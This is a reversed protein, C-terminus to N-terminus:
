RRTLSTNEEFDKLSPYSASYVVSVDVHNNWGEKPRRDVTYRPPIAMKRMVPAIAPIIRPNRKLTRTRTGAIKSAVTMMM